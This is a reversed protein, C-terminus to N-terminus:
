TQVTDKEGCGYGIENGEDESKYKNYNLKSILRIFCILLKFVFLPTKFFVGKLIGLGKVGLFETKPFYIRKTPKVVTM